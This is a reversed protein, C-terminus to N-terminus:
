FKAFNSYPDSITEILSLSPNSSDYYSIQQAGVQIDDLYKPTNVNYETKTKVTRTTYKEYASDPFTEAFTQLLSSHLPKTLPVCKQSKEENSNKKEDLIDGHSKSQETPQSFHEIAQPESNEFDYNITINKSLKAEKGTEILDEVIEDETHNMDCHRFLVQGVEAPSLLNHPLRSMNKEKDFKVDLYGEYMEVILERSAYSFKVKLDVRGPRILAKDLVEPHNSTIVVMRGPIEMTGDLVTLIEMLNLEDPISTEKTISGDRQKVIDGIADIEELVYLRQEIPIFYSHTNDLSNDTYAQLKESYFLNKLQTATTINAFNVNIIHRKTLNAIARIVSTKGAGPLGSLLLGLQYPIGKSDYWDRNNIFFKVRQEIERVQEGYINSFKKNSHFKTMTFCLQKSASNVKMRRFNINAEQPDTRPDGPPPRTITHNKEKQDFFFIDNGLSNKMTEIYANYLGRVYNTIEAASITNSLLSIKIRSLRDEHYTADDIKVYVDKSMQIPTDKYNVMVHANDVLHFSPVNDLKSMQSIVADVMVDSEESGSTKNSKSGDQVSYIRTMTFSNLFHRKSLPVAHDSVLKPKTEIAKEVKNKFNDVLVNKMDSLLKPLLKIFDEFVGVCAMLLYQYLILLMNSDKGTQPVTAHQQNGIQSMVQFKLIEKFDM